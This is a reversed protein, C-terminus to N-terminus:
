DFLSGVYGFHRNIWKFGTVAIEAIDHHLVVRAGICFPVVGIIRRFQNIKNRGPQNFQNIPGAPGQGGTLDEDLARVSLVVIIEPVDTSRLSPRWLSETMERIDGTVPTQAYNVYLAYCIDVSVGLDM